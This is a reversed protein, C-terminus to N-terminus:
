LSIVLLEIKFHEILNIAIVFVKSTLSYYIRKIWVWIQSKEDYDCNIM